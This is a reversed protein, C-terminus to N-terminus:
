SEVANLEVPEVRVGQRQLWRVGAAIEEARGEIELCVIGLEDSVSAQRINTVLEFQHGLRWIVPARIRRPPYTLWYRATRRARGRPGARGAVATKSAPM